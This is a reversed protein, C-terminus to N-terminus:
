AHRLAHGDGFRDLAAQPPAFGAPVVYRCMPGTQVIM